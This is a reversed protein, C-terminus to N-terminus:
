HNTMAMSRKPIDRRFPSQRQISNAHTPNNTIPQLDGAVSNGSVGAGVVVLSSRGSGLCVVVGM